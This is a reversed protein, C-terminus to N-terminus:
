TVTLQPLEAWPSSEATSCHGKGAMRRLFVATDTGPSAHALRLGKVCNEAIWGLRVRDVGSSGTENLDANANKISLM